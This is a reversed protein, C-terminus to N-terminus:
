PWIKKTLRPCCPNTKRGTTALPAPSHPSCVPCAAYANTFKVGKKALADINPTEYFTSGFAGIDTWGLDDILIFLINPKARKIEQVPRIFGATLVLTLALLVVIIRNAIYIITPKLNTKPM